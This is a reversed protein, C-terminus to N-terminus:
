PLKVVGIGEKKVRSAEIIEVDQPIEIKMDKNYDLYRINYIVTNKIDGWRTQNITPKMKYNLRYVLLDDKGVWIEGKWFESDKSFEIQYHFVEKENMIEDELERITKIDRIVNWGDPEDKVNRFDLCFYNKGEWPDSVSFSVKQGKSGHIWKSWFYKLYVNDESVAIIKTKPKEYEYSYYRGKPLNFKNEEKTIHPYEKGNTEVLSNRETVTHVSKVKNLNEQIGFLIENFNDNDIENENEEQLTFTFEEQNNTISQNNKIRWGFILVTGIILFGIFLSVSILIKPNM